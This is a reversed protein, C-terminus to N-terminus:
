MYEFLPKSSEYRTKLTNLTPMAMKHPPVVPPHEHPDRYRVDIGSRSQPQMKFGHTDSDFGDMSAEQELPSPPLPPFSDEPSGPSSTPSPSPPLPGFMNQSLLMEKASESKHVGARFGIM